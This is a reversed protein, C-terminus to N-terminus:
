PTLKSKVLPSSQHNAAATHSKRGYVRGYAGCFPCLKAEVHKVLWFAAGSQRRRARRCLPCSVCVRALAKDFSSARRASM